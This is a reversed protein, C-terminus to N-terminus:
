PDRAVLDRIERRPRGWSGDDKQEYFRACPFDVFCRGGTASRLRLSRDGTPVLAALTALAADWQAQEEATRAEPEDSAAAVANARERVAEGIARLAAAAEVHPASARQTHVHLHHGSSVGTDGIVGLTDGARVLDGLRLARAGSEEPVPSVHAYVTVRHDRLGDPRAWSQLLVVYNGFTDGCSFSAEYEAPKTPLDRVAAPFTRRDVCGTEMAVVVGDHMAAVDEDYALDFDWAGQMQGHTFGGGEGQTVVHTHRAGPAVHPAEAKWPLRYRADFASATEPEATAAGDSETRCAATALLAVFSVACRLGARM